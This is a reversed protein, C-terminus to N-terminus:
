GRVGRAALRLNNVFKGHHFSQGRPAGQAYPLHVSDTLNQFVVYGDVQIADIDKLTDIPHTM